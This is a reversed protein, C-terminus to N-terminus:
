FDWESDMPPVGAPVSPSGSAGPMGPMGPFGLAHDPTGPPTHRGSAADSEESGDATGGALETEEQVISQTTIFADVNSIFEAFVDNADFAAASYDAVSRIIAFGLRAKNHLVSARGGPLRDGALQEVVTWWSGGSPVLHKRVEEHGLIRRVVFDLEAYMLPTMVNAMGVCTTSLNYQLDEIAQMINQRSVFSDPHPSTAVREIYRAAEIMLIRWLRGFDSNGQAGPPLAAKGEDFVQRYFTGREAERTCSMERSLGTRPDLATFRGSFVYDELDRRLQEDEIPFGRRFLYRHTLQTVAAFVGLEDGLTMVYYLQAACRVASASITLQQTTDIFFEVDYPDDSIAEPGPDSAVAKALLMPVMFSPNANVVQPDAARLYDILRARVQPPIDQVNSHQDILVEYQQSEAFKRSVEQVQPGFADATFAVPAARLREVVPSDDLNIGPIRAHNDAIHQRAASIKVYDVVDIAGRPDTTAFNLLSAPLTIGNQLCARAVLLDRVGERALVTRLDFPLDASHEALQENFAYRLEALETTADLVNKISLEDAAPRQDALVRCFSGAAWEGTASPQRKPRRPTLPHALFRRLEAAPGQETGRALFRQTLLKELTNLEEIVQDDAGPFFGRETATARQLFRSKTAAHMGNGSRFQYPSM